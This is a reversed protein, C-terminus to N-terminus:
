KQWEDARNAREEAIRKKDAGRQKKERRKEETGGEAEKRRAGEKRFMAQSQTSTLLRAYKWSWFLDCNYSLGFIEYPLKAVSVLQHHLRNPLSWKVMVSLYM